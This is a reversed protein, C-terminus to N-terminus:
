RSRGSRITRSLQSMNPKIRGSLKEIVGSKSIVMNLYAIYVLGPVVNARFCAFLPSVHEGLSVQGVASKSNSIIIIWPKVIAGVNRVIHLRRGWPIHHEIISKAHITLQRCQFHPNQQGGFRIRQMSNADQRKDYQYPRFGCILRHTSNDNFCHAACGVSLRQLKM